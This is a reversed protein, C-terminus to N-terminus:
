ETLNHMDEPHKFQEESAVSTFLKLNKFKAKIFYDESEDLYDTNSSHNRCCVQVDGQSSESEEWKKRITEMTLVIINNCVNSVLKTGIDYPLGEYRDKFTFKRVQRWTGKHNNGGKKRVIIWDNSQTICYVGM